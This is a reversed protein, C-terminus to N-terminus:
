SAGGEEGTDELLRVTAAHVRAGDVEVVELRVNGIDVTDGVKPARGLREFILGSLTTVRPSALRQGFAEAWEHVGLSGSVRWTGLGIMTPAEVEPEGAETIEGVIEEVVDEVDVVGATGGFEDVVIAVQSKTRRFHDLLQDLSAMEPVYSPPDLDSARVVQGGGRDLLFAKVHLLGAIRDLDGHHV